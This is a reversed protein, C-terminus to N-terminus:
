VLSGGLRYISFQLEAGAGLLLEKLPQNEEVWVNAYDHKAHPLLEKMLPKALAPEEVRIPYIGPFTPDFAAFARPAVEDKLALMAVNPRKRLAELRAVELGFRAALAEDEADEPTYATVNMPPDMDPLASLANWPMRLTWGESERTMGAREYV